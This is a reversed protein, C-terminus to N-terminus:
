NWKSVYYKEPFIKFILKFKIQEELNDINAICLMQSGSLILYKFDNSVKFSIKHTETKRIKAILKDRKHEDIYHYYLHRRKRGEPDYQFFM